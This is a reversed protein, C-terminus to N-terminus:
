GGSAIGSGSIHKEKIIPKMNSDIEIKCFSELQGDRKFLWQIGRTDETSEINNTRVRSDYQAKILNMTHAATTGLLPINDSGTCDCVGGAIAQRNQPLKPKCKRVPKLTTYSYMTLMQNIEELPICPNM